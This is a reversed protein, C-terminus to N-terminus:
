CGGFTRGKDLPYHPMIGGQSLADASVQKKEEEIKALRTKEAEKNEKEIRDKYVRWEDFSNPKFHPQVRRVPAAHGSTPRRYLPRHTGSFTYNDYSLRNLV